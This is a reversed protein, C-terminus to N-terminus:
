IRIHTQSTNNKILTHRCFIPKDLNLERKDFLIEKVHNTKFREQLLKILDYAILLLTFITYIEFFRYNENLM